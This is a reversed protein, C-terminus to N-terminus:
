KCSKSDDDAEPGVLMKLKVIEMTETDMGWYSSKIVSNGHDADFRTTRFM